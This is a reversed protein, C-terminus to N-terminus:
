TGHTTSRAVLMVILRHMTELQRDRWGAIVTLAIIREDEEEKM